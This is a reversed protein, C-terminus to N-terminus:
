DPHMAGPTSEASKDIEDEIRQRLQKRSLQLVARDFIRRFTVKQLLEDILNLTQLLSAVDHRLMLQCRIMLHLSLPLQSITITHFDHTIDPNVLIMLGMLSVLDTDMLQVFECYTTSMLSVCLDSSNITKLAIEKCTDLCKEYLCCRYLNLPEFYSLFLDDFNQEHFRPCSLLNEVSNQRLLQTLESLKPPNDTLMSLHVMDRGGSCLCANPLKALLLDSVPLRNSELIHKRYLELEQCVYFKMSMATSRVLSVQALFCKAHLLCKLTFYHAFLVTTFTGVHQTEHERQNLAASRLYQYLVSLGLANDINDDIKPLLGGVVSHQSICMTSHHQSRTVLSCHDIATQYQGTIHYLVAAYVNTLCYDGNNKADKGKLAKHLYFKAVTIFELEEPGYPASSLFKMVSAAKDQCTASNKWSCLSKMNTFLNHRSIKKSEPYFDWTDQLFHHTLDNFVDFYPVRQTTRQALRQSMSAMTSMGHYFGSSISCCQQKEMVSVLFSGMIDLMTAKNFRGSVGDSLTADMLEFTWMEKMPHPLGVGRQKWRKIESMANQLQAKTQMDEFLLVTNDPCLKACKTVYNDVFWQTLTEESMSQCIAAATQLDLNNRDPPFLNCKSVFYHQCHATTLWISFRRLLHACIAVLSSKSTRWSQPRLECAWLMLTKIHYNSVRGSALDTLQVTKMFVRLMHYVIQQEPIWSNILEVEARSFSLRWQHEVKCQSHAVPVVDCGKSVVHDITSSDPWGSKRYRTPWDAAQPPWVLSHMCKVSDAQLVTEIGTLMASVDVQQLSAPGHINTSRIYHSHSLPSQQINYRIASYSGDSSCERLLHSLVLFVYGPFETDKIEYVKVQKDFEEPLWTPPPDGEPIAVECSYYFMVDVDGTCPLMPAIRFEATSGTVQLNVWTQSEDAPHDAPHPQMELPGFHGYDPKELQQCTDYLFESVERSCNM